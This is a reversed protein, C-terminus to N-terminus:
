DRWLDHVEDDWGSAPEAGGPLGIAMAYIVEWGTESLGLFRRIEDDYFAGIGCAGLGLATAALYIRQGIIGAELHALRYIDPGGHELLVNLSAAMFCVASADGAKDQELSMFRTETRFEGCRLISWQDSPPHYYWIGNEVGSVDHIVWFPRLLGVHPGDPFLPFFSGGRFALRNITLLPDRPMGCRQFDRVSRRALLVRRLPMASQPETLVALDSAALDAPLPSLETLPPRVERIAMGPAVCDHHVALISGYSLPNRSLPERAIPPLGLPASPKDVRTSATAATAALGGTAGPAAVGENAPPRLPQDARDAWIVVGQM